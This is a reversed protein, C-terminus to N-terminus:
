ASDSFYGAYRGSIYMERNLGLRRMEVQFAEYLEWITGPTQPGHTTLPLRTWALLARSIVKHMELRLKLM